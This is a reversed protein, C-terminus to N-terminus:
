NRSKPSLATPADASALQTKGPRDVPEYILAFKQISLSDVPRIEIEITTTELKTERFNVQVQYTKGGWDMERAYLGSEKLGSGDQLIKAVVDLDLEQADHFDYEVEPERLDYHRKFNQERLGIKYLNRHADSLAYQDGQKEIRHSIVMQSKFAKEDLGDVKRTYFTTTDDEKGEFGFSHIHLIRYPTDALNRVESLVMSLRYDKKFKLEEWRKPQSEGVWHTWEEDMAANTKQGDTLHESLAILEAEEDKQTTLAAAKTTENSSSLVSIQADSPVVVAQDRNQWALLILVPFLSLLVYSKKVNGM